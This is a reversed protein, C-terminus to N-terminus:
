PRRLACVRSPGGPSFTLSESEGPQQPCAWTGATHSEWPRAKRLVGESLSLRPNLGPCKAGQDRLRVGESRNALTLKSTRGREPASCSNGRRGKSPLLISSNTSGKKFGCLRHFLLSCPFSVLTGSNDLSSPVITHPTALLTVGPPHGQVLSGSAPLSTGM